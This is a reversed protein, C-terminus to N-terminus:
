GMESVLEGSTRGDAKLALGPQRIHGGTTGLVCAAALVLSIANQLRIVGSFPAFLLAWLTWISWFLLMPLMRPMTADRMARYALWGLALVQASFFIAGVLGAEVWAQLLQSHTMILDEEGAEIAARTLNEGTLTSGLQEQLAVWQSFANANRPWSGYGLVPSQSIMDVGVALGALRQINSGARREILDDGSRTVGVNAVYLLVFMAVAVAGAALARLSLLPRGTRQRRRTFYLALAVLLCSAALSRFDLLLHAVALLSLSLYGSARKAGDIGVLVLLTVPFGAGIKWDALGLTGQVGQVALLGLALGGIWWVLRMPRRFGLVLLGLTNGIFLAARTWGRLYDGPPTGRYLDSVVLAALYLASLLLFGAVWLGERPRLRRFWLPTTLALGFLLLEGLYLRGVIRVDLACFVGVGAAMVEGWAPRGFRVAM